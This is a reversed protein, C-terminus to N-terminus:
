SPTRYSPLVTHPDFHVTHVEDGWVISSESPVTRAIVRGERISRSVVAQRRVADYESTANLLVASAPRGPEIGYSDRLGLARASHSSILKLCDRLEDYGTLHCVHLGMHLVQLMNATGIPYWPDSLDDHGFCVNIGQALLEKVRTLGRRKPYTDFRGQLHINVLPNAVFSIGSLSLLRMLKFAYADNYSGMATTHSATVRPGMNRHYAEAAVVELFRSQEDDIEDCHIDVLRDYREALDFAVKVAKVGDDRTFELHPTAGVADAGLRLAEEVLEAGRPYSCIGEQPFAVIQLSVLDRLEQKLSLLAHLATLKPDTVDCHTRIFQVGNAVYWAIAKRARTTVDDFSLLEKRQAWRQVGEFLTGTRNWEPEGATLTTDLHVHPECLPPCLLCGKADLVTPGFAATRGDSSTIAGFKGDELVVDWLGQHGLLRANVIQTLVTVAMLQVM